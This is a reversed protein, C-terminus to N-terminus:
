KSILIFEADSDLVSIILLAPLSSRIQSFPEIMLNEYYHLFEYFRLKAWSNQM